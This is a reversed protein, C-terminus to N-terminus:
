VGTLVLRTVRKLLAVVSAGKVHLVHLLDALENVIQEATEFIAILRTFCLIQHLYQLIIQIWKISIISPAERPVQLSSQFPQLLLRNPDSHAVIALVGLNGHLHSSLHKVAMQM